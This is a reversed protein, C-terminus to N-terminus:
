INTLHQYLTWTYNNTAGFRKLSYMYNGTYECSIHPAYVVSTQEAFDANLIGDEYRTDDNGSSVVVYHVTGANELIFLGNSAASSSPGTSTIDSTTASGATSINFATSLPYKILNIQNPSSDITMVILETGDPTFHMARTFGGSPVTVSLSTGTTAMSTIDWATSLNYQVVSNSYMIYAKTGDSSMQFHSFYNTLASSVGVNGIVSSLNNASSMSLQRIKKNNYEPIYLRTGSPDVFPQISAPSTSGNILSTVDLSDDQGTIGALTFTSGGPTDIVRIANLRGVNNIKNMNAAIVGNIIEGYGTEVTYSIRPYYISNNYYFTAYNNLTLLPTVNNYDFNHDCIAITFNANGVADTKADSNLAITKLTGTVGAGMEFDGSYPTTFDVNYDNNNLGALSSYTNSNKVVIVDKYVTYGSAKYLKLDLTLITGSVGSFDFTLMGRHINYKNGRGSTEYADPSISSPNVTTSTGSSANRTDAWSYATSDLENKILGDITQKSSPITPM